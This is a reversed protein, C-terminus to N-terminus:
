VYILTSCPGRYSRCAQEVQKYLCLMITREKNKGAVLPIVVRVMRETNKGAMSPHFAKVWQHVRKVLLLVAKVMALSPRLYGVPTKVNVKVRVRHLGM